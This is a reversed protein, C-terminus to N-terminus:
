ILEALRLALMILGSLGAFLGLQTAIFWMVILRTQREMDAKSAFQPMTSEVRIIRQLNTQPTPNAEIQGAQAAMDARANTM